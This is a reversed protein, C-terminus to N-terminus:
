PEDEQNQGSHAAVDFSSIGIAAGQPDRLVAVRGFGPIDTPPVLVQGGLERAREAAADVDEVDIYPVWHAEPGGSPWIPGESTPGIIGGVARQGALLTVYEGPTVALGTVERYFAQASETDSTMLEHWVFGGRSIEVM